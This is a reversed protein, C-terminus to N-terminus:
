SCSLMCGTRCYRPSSGLALPLLTGAKQRAGGAPRSACPELQGPCDSSRRRAQGPGGHPTRQAPAAASAHCCSRWLASLVTRYQRRLRQEAAEAASTVAALPCRSGQAGDSDARPSDPDAAPAPTTPCCLNSLHGPGPRTHVGRPRRAERERAPLSAEADAAPGLWGPGCRAPRRSRAVTAVGRARSSSHARWQLPPPRTGRAARSTWAACSCCWHCGIVSVTRHM